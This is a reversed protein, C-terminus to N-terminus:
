TVWFTYFPTCSMFTGFTFINRWRGISLFAVMECVVNEFANEQFFFNSKQSFNWQLKNRLTWNIIGLCQNLYHSPALYSVILGSDSGISVQIVSAYICCQRFYTSHICTVDIINNSVKSTIDSTHQNALIEQRTRLYKARCEDVFCSSYYQWVKVGGFCGMVNLQHHVVM